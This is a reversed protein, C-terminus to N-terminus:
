TATATLREGAKRGAWRELAAAIETFIPGYGGREPGQRFLRM